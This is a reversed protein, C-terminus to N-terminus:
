CTSQLFDSQAYYGGHVQIVYCLSILIMQRVEYIRGSDICFHEFKYM